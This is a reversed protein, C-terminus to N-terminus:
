VLYKLTNIYIFYEVLEFPLVKIYSPLLKEVTKINELRTAILEVKLDNVLIERFPNGAYMSEYGIAVECSPTERPIRWNLKYAITTDGNWLTNCSGIYVIPIKSLKNYKKYENDSMNNLRNKIKTIEKCKKTFLDINDKTFLFGKISISDEKFNCSENENWLTATKFAYILPVYFNRVYTCSVYDSISVDVHEEIIAGEGSIANKLKKIPLLTYDNNQKQLYLVYANTGHAYM